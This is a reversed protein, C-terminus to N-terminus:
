QLFGNVLVVPAHRRAVDIPPDRIGLLSLRGTVAPAPEVRQLSGGIRRREREEDVPFQRVGVKTIEFAADALRELEAARRQLQSHPLPGVLATTRPSRWTSPAPLSSRPRCTGSM